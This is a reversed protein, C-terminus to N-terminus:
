EEGKAPFAIIEVSRNQERGKDTGNSAIPKSEGLSHISIMQEAIGANLILWDKVAEARQASLTKNHDAAGTSDAHGYIGISANKSRQEISAAIQQLQKEAAPQIKSENNAFLVNEGLSYITYVKNGRVVIATDTVEDFKSQPINFDIASWDPQTTAVPTGQPKVVTDTVVSDSEDVKLAASRNCGKMLLFVVGIGIIFLVIWIWIPSRQKPQVDLQAM